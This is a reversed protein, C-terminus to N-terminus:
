FAIALGARAGGGSVGGAFDMTGEIFGRVRDGTTASFGITARGYTDTRPADFGATGGLNALTLRDRGEFEHIAQAGAYATVRTPGDSLM